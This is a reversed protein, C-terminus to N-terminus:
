SVTARSAPKDNKLRELSAICHPHPLQKWKTSVVRYEDLYDELGFPSDVWRKLDEMTGNKVYLTVSKAILEPEKAPMAKRIQIKSISIPRGYADARPMPVYGDCINRALNYSNWEDMNAYNIQCGFSKGSGDGWDIQSEPESEAMSAEGGLMSRCGAVAAFPAALLTKLISRRSNPM